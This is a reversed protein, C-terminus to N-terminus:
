RRAAEVVPLAGAAPALHVVADCRGTLEDLLRAGHVSGRVFRLKPHPWAAALRARSGTSLDDLVVVGHGRDLLADTLHSGIFGAGGTVLYTLSATM